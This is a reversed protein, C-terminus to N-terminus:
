QNPHAPRRVLEADDVPQDPRRAFDPLSILPEAFAEITFTLRYDDGTTGMATEMWCSAPGCDRWGDSRSGLTVTYEGAALVGGTAVWSAM